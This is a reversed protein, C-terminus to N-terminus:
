FELKILQKRKDGLLGRGHRPQGQEWDVLKFKGMNIGEMFYHDIWKGISEKNQPAM